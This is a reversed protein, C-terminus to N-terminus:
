YAHDLWKEVITLNVRGERGHELRDVVARALGGWPLGDLDGPDFAPLGASAALATV